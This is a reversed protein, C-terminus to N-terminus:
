PMWSKQKAHMIVTQKFIQSARARYSNLQDHILHITLRAMKAMPVLQRSLHAELDKHAKQSKALAKAKQMDTTKVRFDVIDWRRQAEEGSSDIWRAERMTHAHDEAMLVTDMFNQTDNRGYMALANSQHLMLTPKGRIAIHYAGLCGENGDNTSPMWALDRESATLLDIIGGPAFEASFRAWTALSGRFFALTIHPRSPILVFVAKIAQEDSWPLGDLTASEFSVDPGFLLNPNDLIAQIHERIQRHLPRLDLLNTNETGPGRVQRLYPHMIVVRYIIMAVFETLTPIDCLTDQLNKEINTLSPFNKTWKVLDVIKQYLLLHAILESAADGYSGFRTNSTDPFRHHQTGRECSLPYIKWWEDGQKTQKSCRFIM